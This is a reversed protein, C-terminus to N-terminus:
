REALDAGDVEAVERAHVAAVALVHDAEGLEHVAADRVPVEVPERSLRDRSPQPEIVRALGARITRHGRSDGRLPRRHTERGRPPRAPYRPSPSSRLANR